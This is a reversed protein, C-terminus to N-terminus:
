GADAARIIGSTSSLLAPGVGPVDIVLGDPRSEQALYWDDGSLRVAAGSGDLRVATSEQSVAFWFPQFPLLGGAPPYGFATAQGPAAGLAPLRASLVATVAAGLALLLLIWYGWPKLSASTLGGAVVLALACAFAIVATRSSAEPGAIWTAAQPVLVLLALVVCLVLVIVSLGWWQNVGWLTLSTCTVSPGPTGTTGTASGDYAPSGYDVTCGGNTTPLFTLIAILGSLVLLVIDAPALKQAGTQNM